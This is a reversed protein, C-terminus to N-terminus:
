PQFIWFSTFRNPSCFRFANSVLFIAKNRHQVVGSCALSKKLLLKGASSSACAVCVAFKPPSSRCSFIPNKSRFIVAKAAFAPGIFVPMNCSFISEKASNMWEQFTPLQVLSRTLRFIYAFNVGARLFLSKLCFHRGTTYPFASQRQICTARQRAQRFANRKQSSLSIFVDTFDCLLLPM